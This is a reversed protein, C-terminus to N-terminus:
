GAKGLALVHDRASVVVGGPQELTVAFAKAAHVLLAARLPVIVESADTPVDFVGADVPYRQDRDGDFIWLQYQHKQPDNPKLGTFRVFGRQTAPDWVVDGSAGAAAPDKTIGLSVKLSDPRALLAEREQAPTPTSPEPALPAAPPPVNVSVQAPPLVLPAPAPSHLWGIVALVLCAAAAWWGATGRAPSRRVAALEVVKGAAAMDGPPGVERAGAGTGASVMKGVGAGIGAGGEGFAVRADAEIRARLAAPLPEAAPSGALAVAAAALELERAHASAIESDLVDLARQEAPSLGETVQKVLLDLMAEDPQNQPGTDSM